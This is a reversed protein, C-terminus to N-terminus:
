HTESFGRPEGRFLALVAPDQAVGLDNGEGEFGDGPLVIGNYRSGSIIRGTSPISSRRAAGPRLVASRLDRHQEDDLAVAALVRLAVGGEITM